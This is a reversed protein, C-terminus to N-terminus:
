AAAIHQAGGLGSRAFGGRKRQRDQMLEGRCFRGPSRDHSTQHQRRGAFEGILGGRSELDIALMQMQFVGDNVAAHPLIRLHLRQALANVNQDGRRSPQHIQHVLPM